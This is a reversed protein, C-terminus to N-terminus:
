KCVTAAAVGVHTPPRAKALRRWRRLIRHALVALAVLRPAVRAAKPPASQSLRVAHTTAGKHVVAHRPAGVAGSGGDLGHKQTAIMMDARRPRIGLATLTGCRRQATSLLVSRAAGVSGCANWLAENHASDAQLVLVAARAKHLQALLVADHRRLLGLHRCRCGGGHCRSTRRAVFFHAQLLRHVKAAASHVFMAVSLM